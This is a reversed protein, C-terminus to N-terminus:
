KPSERRSRLSSCRALSISDGQGSGPPKDQTGSATGLKRREVGPERLLAPPKPKRAPSMSRGVGAVALTSSSPSPEAVQDRVVQEGNIELREFHALGPKVSLLLPLVEPDLRDAPGPPPPRRRSRAAFLCAIPGRSRPRADPACGRPGRACSRRRRSDASTSRESARFRAPRDRGRAAALALHRFLACFRHPLCHHVLFASGAVCCRSSRTSLSKM